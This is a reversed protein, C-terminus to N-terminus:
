KKLADIGVLTGKSLFEIMAGGGTSVFSFGDHMHLEEIIDVTDGGGIVSKARSKAIAQLVAKTATITDGKGLPGNWVILKATAIKEGLRAVTEPGADFIFDKGSVDAVDKTSIKKGNMVLVDIPLLLKKNETVKELNPADSDVMSKGISFGSDRLLNNALAGGVFLVDACKLYREILPLKTEFKAGGLIFLFPQVKSEYVKGLETVERILHLGAYAPLIKPLLILSAHARHSVSFAENVYIDGYQALALAFTKDYAMEGRERRINELLVVDGDHMGALAKRAVDGFVEAVFKTPIKKNLYKAIPALTASGDSGLHSILVIRAGKKRLFDITPLAENIRFASLIKGNPLVDVNFDVRVLVRKGKWDKVKTIPTLTKM